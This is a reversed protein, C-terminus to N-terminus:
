RTRGKRAKKKPAVPTDSSTNSPPDLEEYPNGDFMKALPVIQYENGDWGMACVALVPKGTKKDRCEVLALHGNDAARNLTEFNAKYGESIM